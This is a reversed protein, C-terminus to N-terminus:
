DAVRRKEQTSYDFEQAIDVKWISDPLTETAHRVPNPCYVKSETQNKIYLTGEHEYVLTDELVQARHDNFKTESEGIIVFDKTKLLKAGKPIERVEKLIVEGHKIMRM